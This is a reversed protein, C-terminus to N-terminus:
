GKHKPLAIDSLNPADEHHMIGVINFALIATLEFKIKLLYPM